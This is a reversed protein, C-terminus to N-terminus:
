AGTLAVVCQDNLPLFGHEVFTLEGTEHLL